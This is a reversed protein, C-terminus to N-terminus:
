VFLLKALVIKQPAFRFVLDEVIFVGVFKISSDNQPFIQRPFLWIAISQPAAYPPLSPQM